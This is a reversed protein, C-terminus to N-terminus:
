TECNRVEDGQSTVCDDFGAGGDIRDVEDDDSGVIVDDGDGGVLVDRGAGGALTDNGADGSVTDNGPGGDLDDDGSNGRITDNGGEGCIVDNGGKGNITDDGDSGIIVDDKATGDILAPGKQGSANLWPHTAEQGNCLGEVSHAPRGGAIAAGVLLVAVALSRALRGGAARKCIHGMAGWSQTGPGTCRDFPARRGEGFPVG